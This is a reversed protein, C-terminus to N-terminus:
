KWTGLVLDHMDKGALLVPDGLEEGMFSEARASKCLQAGTVALSAEGAAELWQGQLPPM